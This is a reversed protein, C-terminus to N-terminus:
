RSYCEACRVSNRYPRPNPNGFWVEFSKGSFMSIATSYSTSIVQFYNFGMPWFNFDFFHKTEVQKSPIGRAILRNLEFDVGPDKAVIIRHVSM